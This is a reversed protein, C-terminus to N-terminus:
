GANGGLQTETIGDDGKLEAEQRMEEKRLAIEAHMQELKLAIEAELQRDKRSIDAMLERDKRAQEAREAELSMQMKDRTVEARAEADIVKPDRPAEPPPDDYGEPLKKFFQSPDRFGMVEVARAYSNRLEKLGALPNGLGAEAIIAKQEQALGMVNQLQVERSATGQGLHVKVAMEDSWRRPDFPVWRAKIKLLRSHDQYTCVCQLITQFVKELSKRLQRAIFEKRAATANQLLAIGSATKNLAEPNLGQSHRSVGTRQEAQQDWYELMNFAAPTMDPVVEWSIAANVDGSVPIVSAIEHDLMADIGEEDLAQKNFAGRPRISMELNDLANRTVVTRIRQIDIVRDAISRGIYKHAVPIPSFGVFKCYRAPENEVIVNGVREIRRLEVVGDGDFDVRLYEELLVVKRRGEHSAGSRFTDGPEDIFRSDRRVDSELDTNSANINLTTLEHKREPYERWLDELYVERRRACYDQAMVKSRRSILFEEPPVGEVVCRGQRPTHKVKLDFVTLEGADTQETREAQELIEYEPDSVYRSLQEVTVGELEEPPKPKPTEWDVSVVGIRQLLGDFAMDHTIRDGDNDKFYIHQLYDAAAEVHEEDAEGAPELAILDDSSAFVRELDPLIWDITDAVDHTVVQSRDDLEDGYTKAYYREMAQAQSSALESTYFSAADHEESRLIKLLEKEDMGEAMM